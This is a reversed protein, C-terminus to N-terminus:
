LSRRLSSLKEEYRKIKSFAEAVEIKLSEEM